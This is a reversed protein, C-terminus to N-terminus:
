EGRYRFGRKALEEPDAYSRRGAREAIDERHWAATARRMLSVLDLGRTAEAEFRAAMVLDYLEAGRVARRNNWAGRCTARCFAARADNSFVPLGCERCTRVVM